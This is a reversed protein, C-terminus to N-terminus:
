IIKPLGEIMSNITSKALICVIKGHDPHFLTIQPLEVGDIIIKGWEWRPDILCKKIKDM